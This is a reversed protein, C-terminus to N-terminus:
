ASHMSADNRSSRSAATAHRTNGVLPSFPGDMRGRAGVDVGVTVVLGDQAAVGPARGLVGGGVQEGAQLGAEIQEVDAAARARDGGVERPAHGGAAHDPDVTRAVDNGLGPAMGLAGADGDLERDAVHVREFERIRREIDDMGMLDQLVQRIRNRRQALQAPDHPRAADDGDAVAVVRAEHPCREIGPERAPEVDVAGDRAM